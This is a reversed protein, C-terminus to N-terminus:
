KSRAKRRVMSISPATQGGHSHAVLNVAEGPSHKHAFWTLAAGATEWVRNEGIVGDLDTSWRFPEPPLTAGAERLMGAFPSDPSWWPHLDKEGWTGSVLIAIM